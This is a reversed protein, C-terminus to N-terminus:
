KNNKEEDIIKRGQKGEGKLLPNPHPKKEATVNSRTSSVIFHVHRVQILKYQVEFAVAPGFTMVVGYLAVLVLFNGLTRFILFRITEQRTM